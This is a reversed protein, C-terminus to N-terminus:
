FNDNMTKDLSLMASNVTANLSELMRQAQAKNLGSSGKKGTLINVMDEPNTVGNWQTTDHAVLAISYMRCRYKGDKCDIQITMKDDFPMPTSLPGVFNVLEKGKGIIRMNSTDTVEISRDTKYRGIFWQQASNYLQVKTKGSADFVKEYVVSGNTMPIHLGTTDKQAFAASSAFLLLAFFLKKM